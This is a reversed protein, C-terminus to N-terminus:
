KKKKSSKEKKQKNLKRQKIGALTIDKKFFILIAMSLLGYVIAIGALGFFGYALYKILDSWRFERRREINDIKVVDITADSIDPTATENPSLTVVANEQNYPPPTFDYLYEPEGTSTATPTIVATETATITETSTAPTTISADPTPTESFVYINDTLALTFLLFLVTLTICKIIYSYKTTKMFNKEPM